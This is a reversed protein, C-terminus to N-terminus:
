NERRVERCVQESAQGDPTVQEIIPQIINLFAVEAMRDEFRTRLLESEVSLNMFLDLAETPAELVVRVKQSLVHKFMVIKVHYTLTQAQLPYLCLALSSTPSCSSM